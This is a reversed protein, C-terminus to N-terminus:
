SKLDSIWQVFDIEKIPFTREDIEKREKRLLANNDHDSFLFLLLM